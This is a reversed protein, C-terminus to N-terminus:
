RSIRKGIACRAVSPQRRSRNGAQRIPSSDRADGPRHPPDRGPPSSFQAAAPIRAAGSATPLGEAEIAKWGGNVIRAQCVGWYRLYWWLRAAEQGARDDYIVVETDRGIGLQSFRRSWLETDRGDGFDKSWDNGNASLAEKLHSKEFKEPTRADLVLRSGPRTPLKKLESAEILLDAHAYVSGTAPDAAAVRQLPHFLTGILGNLILFCPLLRRSPNGVRSERVCNKSQQQNM